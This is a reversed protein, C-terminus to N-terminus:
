KIKNLGMSYKQGEEVIGLRTRKEEIRGHFAQNDIYLNPGPKGLRSGKVVKYTYTYEGAPLYGEAMSGSILLTNNAKFTFVINSDSYDVIPREGNFDYYPYLIVLKWSGIIQKEGKECSGATFLLILVLCPVIARACQSALTKTHCIQKQRKQKM